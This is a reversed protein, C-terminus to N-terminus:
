QWMGAIKTGCFPCRGARIRNERVEYVLRQVLLKGCVPCYTNRATTAASVNGLYVYRLGAARAVKRAREVTSMPTAPLHKLQYMPTFRSFTLPVDRGVNEAIWRCMKAIEAMDDNITPVVLNVLELWVGSKKAAVIAELVPELTGQCIDHYFKESFGKLDIKMVDVAHCLERMPEARIYAATCVATKLGLRRAARATDLVYEIFVVPETYNFAVFKAGAAKAAKAAAEPPVIHNTTNEPPSQSMQWNQCYKCNLNCGATGLSLARSGPLAHLIPKKEIPDSRLACPNGYVLTYYKGGRNERVGCYGREGEGVECERPCLRCRVRGGPLKDYFQAERRAIYGKRAVGEAAPSAVAALASAGAWRSLAAFFERRTVGGM